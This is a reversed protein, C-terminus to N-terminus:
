MTSRPPSAAQGPVLLYQGTLAFGFHIFPGRLMHVPMPRETLVYQTGSCSRMPASFTTAAAFFSPILNRALPVGCNGDSKSNALLGAHACPHPGNVRPTVAVVGSSSVLAYAVSAASPLYQSGIGILSWDAYPCHSPAVEPGVREMTLLGIAPLVPVVSWSQVAPRTVIVLCTATPPSSASGSLGWGACRIVWGGTLVATARVSRSAIAFLGAILKACGLLSLANPLRPAKSSTVQRDMDAARARSCAAPKLTTTLLTGTGDFQGAPVTPRM